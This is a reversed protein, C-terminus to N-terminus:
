LINLKFVFFTQSENFKGFKRDYLAFLVRSTFQEFCVASNWALAGDLNKLGLIWHTILQGFYNYFYYSLLFYSSNLLILVWCHPCTYFHLNTLEHILLLGFHRNEIKKEAWSFVFILPYILFLFAFTIFHM